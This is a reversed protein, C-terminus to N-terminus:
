FTGCQAELKKALSDCLFQADYILEQADPKETFMSIIHTVRPKSIPVNTTGGGSTYATDGIFTTTSTSPMSVSTEKTRLSSSDILFFKYGNQLTIDACRLLAHNDASDMTWAANGRFAVKWANPSLQTENLSSSFQNQTYAPQGGCGSLVILGAAVLIYQIYARM